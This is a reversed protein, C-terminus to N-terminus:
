CSALLKQLEELGACVIDLLVLRINVTILQVLGNGFLIAVLFLEYDKFPSNQRSSHLVGKLHASQCKAEAIIMLLTQVLM